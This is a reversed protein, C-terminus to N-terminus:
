VVVHWWQSGLSITISCGLNLAM